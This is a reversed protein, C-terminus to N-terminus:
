KEIKQVIKSFESDTLTPKIGELSVPELLNAYKIGRTREAMIPEKLEYVRLIWVKAKSTSMYSGVHENTWIYYNELSSIRSVPIEIVKEVKAFYKVLSKRNEKQPFANEEVFDWYKTQFSELYNDKLAYSVTPYLIFNPLTTNYNRILITQKGQGLAEVTANWENLSKTIKRM